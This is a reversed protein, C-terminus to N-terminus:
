CQESVGFLGLTGSPCHLNIQSMLAVRNGMKLRPYMPDMPIEGSLNSSYRYEREFQLSPTEGFHTEKPLFVLPTSLFVMVRQSQKGRENPKAIKERRAEM